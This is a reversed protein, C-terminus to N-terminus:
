VLNCTRSNTEWVLEILAPKVAWAKWADVVNAAVVKLTPDFWDVLTYGKSGLFDEGNVTYAIPIGSFRFSSPLPVVM